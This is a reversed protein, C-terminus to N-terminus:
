RSVNRCLTRVRNNEDIQILTEGVNVDNCETYYVEGVEIPRWFGLLDSYREETDFCGCEDVEEKSCSILLATVALALFLNRM